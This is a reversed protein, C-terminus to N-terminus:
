PMFYGGTVDLIAGTVFSADESLFYGVAAAVDEPRGLRGM